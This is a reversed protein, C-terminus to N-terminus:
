FVSIEIIVCFVSRLFLTDLYIKFVSHVIITPVITNTMQVSACFYPALIEYLSVIVSENKDAIVHQAKSIGAM